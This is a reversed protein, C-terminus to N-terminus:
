RCVRERDASEVKLPWGFAGLAIRALEYIRTWFPDYADTLAMPGGAGPGAAYGSREGRGRAGVPQSWVAANSAGSALRLATDISAIVRKQEATWGSGHAAEAQKRAREFGLILDHPVGPSAPFPSRQLSEAGTALGQLVNMLSPFVQEM